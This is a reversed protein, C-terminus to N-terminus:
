EELDGARDAQRAFERGRQAAADDDRRDTRHTDRRQAGVAHRRVDDRALSLHPQEDGRQSVVDLRDSSSSRWTSIARCGNARSWTSPEAFRAPRAWPMAAIDYRIPFVAKLPLGLAKALAKPGHTKRNFDHYRALHFWRDGTFLSIGVFHMNKRADRLDVSGLMAWLRTGNALQAETGIVRNALSRVRRPELPTVWTEDPTDDSAYQWVAHRRFDKPNLSAVPRRKPKM